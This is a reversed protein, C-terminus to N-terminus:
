CNKVIWVIALIFNYDPKAYNDPPKQEECKYACGEKGDDNWGNPNDCTNDNGRSDMWDSSNFDSKVNGCVNNSYAALESLISVIGYTNNTIENNILKNGIVKKSEPCGRGGICAVYGIISIGDGINNYIKNDAIENFNTDVKLLLGGGHDTLVGNSFILNKSIKNYSSQTVDMGIDNLFCKNNFIMNNYAFKKVSIGVLNSSVANDRINSDNTLGIAIGEVFGSIGCNKITVNRSYVIYVGTVGDMSFALTKNFKIENEQCDFVKNASESIVICKKEDVFEEKHLLNIDNILRVESCLDDSLKETCDKCSNCECIEASVSTSISVVILITVILNIKKMKM